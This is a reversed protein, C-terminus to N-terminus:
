FVTEATAGEPYMMAELLERPDDRGEGVQVDVAGFAVRALLYFAVPDTLLEEGEFFPGVPTARLVQGAMGRAEDEVAAVALPHGDMHGDELTLFGTFDDGVVHLITKGMM